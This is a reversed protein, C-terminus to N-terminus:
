IKISLTYKASLGICISLASFSFKFFCSSFANAALDSASALSSSAMPREPDRSDDPLSSGASTLLILTGGCDPAGGGGGIGPNPAGGGGGIGPAGGGGGIGPPKPGGGGGGGGPIPPPGGGGGGGGPIPPPGGGGGM